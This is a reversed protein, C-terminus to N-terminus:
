RSPRRFRRLAVAGAGGARAPPFRLCQRSRLRPGLRKRFPCPRSHPWWAPTRVGLELTSGLNMESPAPRRPPPATPALTPDMAPWQVPSWQTAVGLVVSLASLQVGETIPVVARWTVFCTGWTAMSTCAILRSGVSSGWLSGPTSGMSGGRRAHGEPLRARVRPFRPHLNELLVWEDGSLYPIRQDPPAAQFYGWDFATPVEPDARDIATRLSENLKAGRPAWGRAIPGFGITRGPHNPCVLNPSLPSGGVQDAHGAHGVGVPNEDWGPGGYSHEYVLPIRSFPQGM